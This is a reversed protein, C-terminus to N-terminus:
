RGAAWDTAFTRELTSVVTADDVLRGIERNSMISYYTFNESGVYAHAADVVMMKAHLYPTALVRVQVGAARLTAVNMTQQSTATANSLLVRVTAGARAASVLQMTLADDGWEEGEVDVSRRAGGALASLQARANIPAIVLPGSYAPAATHAYDASFVGELATVDAAVDDVLLYERNGTAAGYAANMTMIWAERGDILVCKAHTYTFTSAAWVVPVGASQLMSYTAANDGAGAPFTQNLVVRVDVGARHRAILADIVNSYSMLYMTMHVSRRAGNIATVLAAGMDSPEVIVRLSGPATAADPTSVDPGRVVDTGRVDAGQVDPGGAADMAVATDDPPSAADDGPDVASDPDQGTDNDPGVPDSCGLGVLAVLALLLALPRFSARTV